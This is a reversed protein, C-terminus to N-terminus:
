NSNPTALWLASSVLKEFVDPSALRRVDEHKLVAKCGAGVCKLKDWSMANLEGKIWARVCILCTTSKHKCNGTMTPFEKLPKEEICIACEQTAPTPLDPITAEEEIRNHNRRKRGGRLDVLNEYATTGSVARTIRKHPPTSLIDPQSARQRTQRPTNLDSHSARYRPQASPSLSPIPRSFNPQSTQHRPQRPAPRTPKVERPRPQQPETLTDELSMWSVYRIMEVDEDSDYSQGYPSMNYIGHTSPADQCPAVVATIPFSVAGRRAQSFRGREALIQYDQPNNHYEYSSQLQSPKPSLPPTPLLPQQGLPFKDNFEAWSRDRKLELLRQAELKSNSHGM